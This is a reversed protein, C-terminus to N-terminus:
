SNGNKLIIRATSVGGRCDILEYVITDNGGCSPDRYYVISGAGLIVDGCPQNVIRSIRLSDGDPDSDNDLPRILTKNGQVLVTDDGPLPDHNDKRREPGAGNMVLAPVEVAPDPHYPYYQGPDFATGGSEMKGTVHEYINDRAVLSPDKRGMGRDEIFHPDELNRFYNYEAVVDSEFRAAICYSGAQEYYNNFLHVQGFRVRPLRQNLRYYAQDAADYFESLGDFWCHHVTVRFHGRAYTQRDNSGILMVKNHDSFRTWSVTIYDAAKGSQGTIDLLGDFGHFLHCHDVWINRGYLTLCDTGPEGKGDWHGDRYSDGISLNRVIVNSGMIMLGGNRIMANRGAGAITINSASVELMEGGSLEITDRILIVAPVRTKIGRILQERDSVSVTDGGAGGSTGGNLSAWGVPYREAHVQQSLILAPIFYVTSM